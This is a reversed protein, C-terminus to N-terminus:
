EYFKQTRQIEPLDQIRFRDNPLVETIVYPGKYKLTLKRSEKTQSPAQRLVVVLDGIAYTSVEIRGWNHYDQVRKQEAIISELARIRLQSINKLNEQTSRMEDQVSDGDYMRPIFGFM